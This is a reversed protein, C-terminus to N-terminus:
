STPTKPPQILTVEQWLGPGRHPPPLGQLCAARHPHLPCRQMGRGSLPPGPAGQPHTVHRLATPPCSHLGVHWRRVGRCGTTTQGSESCDRSPDGATLCDSTPIKMRSARQQAPRWWVGKQCHRGGEDSLGWRRRSRGETGAGNPEGAKCGRMLTSCVHQGAGGQAASGREHTGWHETGMGSNGTGMGSNGLRRGIARGDRVSHRRSRALMEASVM